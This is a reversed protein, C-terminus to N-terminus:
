RYLQIKLPLLAQWHRKMSQVLVIAEQGARCRGSTHAYTILLLSPHIPPYGMPSQLGFVKSNTPTALRAVRAAFGGQSGQFPTASRLSNKLIIIAPPFRVVILLHCGSRASQPPDDTSHYFGGTISLASQAPFVGHRHWVSVCFWDTSCLWSNLLLRKDRTLQVSYVTRQGWRHVDRLIQM